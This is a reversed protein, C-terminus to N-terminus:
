VIFGEAEFSLEVELEMAVIEAYDLSAAPPASFKLICPIGVKEASKIEAFESRGDRLALFTKLDFVERLDAYSYSLGSGALRAKLHVCDPCTDLGYIKYFM